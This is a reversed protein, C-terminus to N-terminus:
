RAGEAPRMQERRSLEVLQWFVGRVVEEDIGAERALAAAQRIVAAERGPDMTAAGAARKRAGVQRALRVRRAILSVLTRDVHDIRSRLGDLDPRRRPRADADTRPSHAETQQTGPIDM